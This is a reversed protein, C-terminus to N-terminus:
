LYDRVYHIRFGVFQMVSFRCGRVKGSFRPASFILLNRKRRTWLFLNGAKWGEFFPKEQGPQGSCQNLHWFQIWGLLVCDIGKGARKQHQSSSSGTLRPNHSKANCIQNAVSNTRISDQRDGEGVFCGLLHLLPDAMLEFDRFPNSATLWGRETGCYARKMGMANLNELSM